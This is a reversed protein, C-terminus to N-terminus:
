ALPTQALGLTSFWDKVDQGNGQVTWMGAFNMMDPTSVVLTTPQAAIELQDILREAKIRAAESSFKWVPVWVPRAPEGLERLASQVMAVSGNQLERLHFLRDDLGHENVREDLIEFIFEGGPKDLACLGRRPGDCWDMVIAQRTHWHQVPLSALLKELEM